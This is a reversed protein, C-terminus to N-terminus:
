HSVTSRLYLKINEINEYDVVKRVIAASDVTLPYEKWAHSTWRVSTLQHFISAPCDLSEFHPVNNHSIFLTDTASRTADSFNLLLTDMESGQRLPLLFADINQAQNLLISDKSGGTSVTLVHTLTLSAGDEARYLGCTMEVVNDLPCDINTCAVSLPLLVM